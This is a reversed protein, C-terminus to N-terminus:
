IKRRILLERKRDRVLEAIDATTLESSALQEFTLRGEDAAAILLDAL